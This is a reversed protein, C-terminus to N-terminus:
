LEAHVVESEKHRFHPSAIVRYNKSFYQYLKEALAKQEMKFLLHVNAGADMTVIPGDKKYNWVLKCDNLVKESDSVKYKFSDASTEFLQHMDEFEDWSTRYAKEWNDESLAAMLDQLRQEAREARGSFYASTVVRKHAESSSVAKKGDDVVVLLHLLEKQPFSLEQVSEKSWLSWPSFFSRCSSGSGRRSEQALETNSFKKESFHAAALTLAAFSSASSAIGCDSPFNNGSEILFSGSISFQQKLVNLFNLYKMQAKENLNLSLIGSEVLPRWQDQQGPGEVLTMRVFSLLHPLTYSLSSNTPVNNSSDVKGMYKILAINSPASVTVTKKM